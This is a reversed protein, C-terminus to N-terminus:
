YVYDYILIILHCAHIQYDPYICFSYQTNSLIICVQVYSTISLTIYHGCYIRIPDALQFSALSTIQCVPIIVAITINLQRCLYLCSGMYKSTWIKCPWKPMHQTVLNPFMYLFSLDRISHIIFTKCWNTFM